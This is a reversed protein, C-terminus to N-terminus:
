YAWKTLYGVFIWKEDLRHYLKAGGGTGPYEYGIVAYTHDNNFAPRSYYHARKQVYYSTPKHADATNFDVVRKHLERKQKRTVPKFKNIVDNFNINEGHLVIASDLEQDSWNTNDMLQANQIIEVLIATDFNKFASETLYDRYTGLFKRELRISALPKCQVVEYPRLLFHPLSDFAQTQAMLHGAAFFATLLLLNHRYM